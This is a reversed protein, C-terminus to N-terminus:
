LQPFCAAPTLTKAGNEKVKAYLARVGDYKLVDFEKSKNDDNKAADDDGGLGLLSKLFGM